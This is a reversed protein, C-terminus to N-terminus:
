SFKESFWAMWQTREFIGNGSVFALYRLLLPNLMSRLEVDSTEFVRRFTVDSAGGRARRAREIEDALQIAFATWVNSSSTNSSRASETIYQCVFTRVDRDWASDEGAEIM